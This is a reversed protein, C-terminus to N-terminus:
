FVSPTRTQVCSFTHVEEDEYACVTRNAVKAGNIEGGFVIAYRGAPNPIFETVFYGMEPVDFRGQGVRGLNKQAVVKGRPDNNDLLQYLATVNVTEGSGHTPDVAVGGIPFGDADTGEVDKVAYIEIGNEEREYAPEIRMGVWFGITDNVKVWHHGLPPGWPNPRFLPRGRPDIPPKETPAQAAGAVLQPLAYLPIRHGVPGDVGFSPVSVAALLPMLRALRHRTQNRTEWFSISRIVCTTM